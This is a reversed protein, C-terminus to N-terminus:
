PCKSIYCLGLMYCIGEVLVPVSDSGNRGDQLQVTLLIDFNLVGDPRAVEYFRYVSMILSHM